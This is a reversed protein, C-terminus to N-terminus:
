NYTGFFLIIGREVNNLRCWVRSMSTRSEYMLEIDDDDTKFTDSQHFDGDEFGKTFWRVRQASHRRHLRRSSTARCQMQIKDDGIATAALGSEIDGPELVNRMRQIHNAWVGAYFDAQLEM